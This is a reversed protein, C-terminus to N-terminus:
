SNFVSRARQEPYKKYIARVIENFSRARAWDVVSQVYERVEIPLTEALAQARRVGEPTAAYQRFSGRPHQTIMALGEAALWEADAYVDSDFPGYDYPEFAYFGRSHGSATPKVNEGILFLSKQLQVPQLAAGGAAGLVLLCWDRRQLM